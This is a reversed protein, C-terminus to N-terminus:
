INNELAHPNTIIGELESESLEQSVITETIKTLNIRRGNYKEKLYQLREYADEPNKTLFDMDTDYNGPKHEVEIHYSFERHFKM